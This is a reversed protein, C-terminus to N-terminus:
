KGSSGCCGGAGTNHVRIGSAFYTHVTEVELNYVFDYKPGAEIATIASEEGNELTLKDGVQLMGARDFNAYEGERGNKRYIWHNDTVTLIGKEHKIILLPSAVGDADDEGHKFTRTVPYAAKEGTKLDFGYVMDGAALTQIEKDGEPTSIATGFPFCWYVTCQEVTYTCPPVAGCDCPEPIDAKATPIILSGGKTYNTKLYNGLIGIVGTFFIGVLFFMKKKITQNM